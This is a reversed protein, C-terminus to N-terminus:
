LLNLVEGIPILAVVTGKERFHKFDRIDYDNDANDEEENHEPVEEEVENKDEDLKNIQVTTKGGKKVITIGKKGLKIFTTDGKENIEPKNGLVKHGTSDQNVVQKEEDKNVSTSDASQGRLSFLCFCIGLILVIRKM